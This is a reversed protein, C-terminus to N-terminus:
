KTAKPRPDDAPNVYTVQFPGIGYVAFSAGDKSWAFHHVERAIRAYSGPGMEKGKTADFTDGTGMGLTGQLVIVSEDTPHWHPAFTYGAPIKIWLTFPEGARDPAGQMVAIM